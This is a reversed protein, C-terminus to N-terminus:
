AVITVEPETGRCRRGIACNKHYNNARRIFFRVATLYNLEFCFVRCVIALQELRKLLNGLQFKVGIYLRGVIVM